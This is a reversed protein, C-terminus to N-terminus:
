YRWQMYASRMKNNLKVGNFQKMGTEQDYKQVWASLNNNKTITEYETRISEVIFGIVMEQMVQASQFTNQYVSDAVSRITSDPVIINKGEPHVGKLQHTIMSSMFKISQDSFFAMYRDSPMYGAAYRYNSNIPFEGSYNKSSTSVNNGLKQDNYFTYPKQYDTFTNYYPHGPLGQVPPPPPLYNVVTPIDYISTM